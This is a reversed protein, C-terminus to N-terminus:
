PQQAMIHPDKAAVAAMVQRQQQMRGMIMARNTKKRCASDSSTSSVFKQFMCDTGYSITRYRGEHSLNYTRCDYTSMGTRSYKM